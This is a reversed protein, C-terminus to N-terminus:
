MCIWNDQYIDKLDVFKNWRKPAIVIKNDNKCLYQAWWSFTSNSIIFNNCHLMIAFEDIMTSVNDVYKINEKNYISFEEKVENIEDSFIYFVPNRLKKNLYEMSNIYYDTDCVQYQFNKRLKCM